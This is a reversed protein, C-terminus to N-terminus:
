LRADLVGAGHRSPVYQWSGRTDRDGLAAQVLTHTWNNESLATEEAAVQTRLQEVEAQLRDYEGVGACRRCHVLSLSETSSSNAGATRGSRSCRRPRRPFECITKLSRTPLGTSVYRSRPAGSRRDHSDDYGVVEINGEVGDIRVPLHVVEPAIWPTRYPMGGLAPARPPGSGRVTMPSLRTM